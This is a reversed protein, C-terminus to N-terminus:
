FPETLPIITVACSYVRAQSGDFWAKLFTGLKTVRYRPHLQVPNSHAIAPARLEGAQMSGRWQYVQDGQPPFTATLSDDQSVLLQFSFFNATGVLGLVVLTDIVYQFGFPGHVALAPRAPTLDVDYVLLRSARGALYDQTLSM